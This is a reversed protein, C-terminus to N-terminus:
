DSSGHIITVTLQIARHVPDNQVSQHQLEALQQRPVTCTASCTMPCCWYRLPLLRVSSCAQHAEGPGQHLCHQDLIGICLMKWKEVEAYMDRPCTAYTWPVCAGSGIHQQLAQTFAHATTVAPATADQLFRMSRAM